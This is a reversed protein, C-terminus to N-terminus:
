QAKVGLIERFSEGLGDLIAPMDQTAKAAVAQWTDISSTHDFSQPNM